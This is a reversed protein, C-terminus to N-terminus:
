IILKELMVIMNEITKLGKKYYERSSIDLGNEILLDYPTKSGGSKLINKYKEIFPKGEEKYKEYLAFTLLNGFAYTYCYFPVRFIHPIMSWGTEESEPVDYEVIDGAMKVQEKRWLTNFDEYTLEKGSYIQNHVEREFLVYQVQRFITAFIDELKKELFHIKEKDDMKELLAESLLMENFVSATEALSLPSDFVQPKQCQSLHGHTAHGLEHALTAVDRIKGTHNLLVYSEFGQIYQAFAGGRKGPKPFVDVRGKEFMNLSYNYFEEDFEKIVELFIKLSEEFSYEKEDKSTSALLDYNMLKEKGMLKAKIKLYRQFLPYANEVEELLMDVIKNDLEENINRPSMVTEFGRIKIDSTWDKVISSYAKGLTIMIKKDNYIERIARYAEKRINENPSSRLSRVESDTMEKIEGDLNVKFLFSNTLEEYMDSFASGGSNDKMNLAFEVEEDKIYKISLAQQYFYNSYDKLKESKSFEILKEYGIEKYEQSIFLMKNSLEIMMNEFEGNKRIVKQDQTNLSSLYFYYLAIKEVKKSITNKEELFQLFDNESFNKIKNKYKKIFNEYNNLIEKKDTEITHDDLNEYFNEFEWSTKIKKDQITFVSKDNGINSNKNEAM